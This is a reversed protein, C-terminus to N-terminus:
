RHAAYPAGRKSNKGAAVVVQGATDAQMVPPTVVATDAVTAASQAVSVLSAMVCLIAFLTKKMDDCIIILIMIEFNM